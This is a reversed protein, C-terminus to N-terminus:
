DDTPIVWREGEALTNPQQGAPKPAEPQKPAEAPKPAAGGLFSRPRTVAQDGQMAAFTYREMETRWAEGLLERLEGAMEAPPAEFALRRAGREVVERAEALDAVQCFWPKSAAEAPPAAQVMKDVLDAIVVLADVQENALAREASSWNGAVAVCLGWQHGRGPKESANVAVLDAHVQEATALDHAVGLIVSGDRAAAAAEFGQALDDDRADPQVIVVLGTRRSVLQKVLEALEEPSDRLGTWALTRALRLRTALGMM